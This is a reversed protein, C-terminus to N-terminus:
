DLNVEANKYIFTSGQQIVGRNARSTPGGSGGYKNNNSMNTHSGYGYGYGSKGSGYGNGYGSSYGYGNNATGTTKMSVDGGITTDYPNVNMHSM